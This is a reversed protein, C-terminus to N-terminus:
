KLQEVNAILKVQTKIAAITTRLQAREAGANLEKKTRSTQQIVENLVDGKQEAHLLMITKTPETPTPETTKISLRLMTKLLDYRDLKSM